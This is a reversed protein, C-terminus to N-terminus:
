CELGDVCEIEDLARFRMRANVLFKELDRLLILRRCGIKVFPLRGDNMCNYLTARSLGCMVSAEGASVSIKPAVPKNKMSM